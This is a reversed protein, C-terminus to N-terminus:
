GISSFQWYAIGAAILALVIGRRRTKSWDSKDYFKEKRLVVSLWDIMLGSTIGLAFPLLVFCIAISLLLNEPGILKSGYFMAGAFYGMPAMAVLISLIHLLLLLLYRM